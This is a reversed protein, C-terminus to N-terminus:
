HTVFTYEVHKIKSSYLLMSQLLRVNIIICCTCFWQICIIFAFRIIWSRVELSLILLNYKGFHMNAPRLQSCYNLHDHNRYPTSASM